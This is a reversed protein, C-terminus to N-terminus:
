SWPSDRHLCLTARIQEAKCGNFTALHYRGKVAARHGRLGSRHQEAGGIPLDSQDLAKGAAEGIMARGLQHHVLHHAQHALPHQPNRQAVLVQDVVVLQPV